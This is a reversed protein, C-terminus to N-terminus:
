KQTTWTYSAFTVGMMSFHMDGSIVIQSGNRSTKGEFGCLVKAGDEEM